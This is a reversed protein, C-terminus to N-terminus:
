FELKLNMGYCRTMPLAGTEAGRYLSSGTLATVEPDFQPWRTLCFVNTAYVSVSANRLIKSRLCIKKPLAYTLRLEKLKFYSTSFMNSEINDRNYLYTNYYEVVDTTVTTNPSYTGDPNLNVGPHVLGDYRGELTAETKGMYSLIANTLSYARGGFSGSFSASLTITRFRIGTQLGTTWDPFISGLDKLEANRVPCGTDASVIDMGSCDVVKGSADVYSAGEPAKEIGTGYIRGLDGGPFGYVMVKGGILSSMQWSTVGPALEVLTNKNWAWNMDITWRFNRRDVPIGHFALEVGRNRVRGANVLSAAAGSAWDQPLNIIQNTMDNNYFTANFGIRHAYFSTEVGVEFSEMNEPKLTANSKVSPISYSGPFRGSNAYQDLIRYPDTDNGVNAWSFFLKLMDVKQTKISCIKDLLLSTNVSPYFYSNHGKALASSWDNRGTLELFVMDRWSASVMAYISNVAKNYRRSTVSLAGNSNQLMYVDPKELQAVYLNINSRNQVMMNGGLSASLHIDHSFDHNFSLLFDVNNELFRATQERYMGRTASRSYQPKRQTRFDNQFNLAGRVMLELMDPIIHATVSMNGYVRDRDMTNLHGYAIFYPNDNASNILKMKDEGDAWYRSVNGRAYENYLDDASACPNAWMLSKMIGTDSYGGAPLNGSDKRYYVLSLKADVYRSKGTTANVSYTQTSYGTNPVIWKNRVDKFSVRVSAGNKGACNVAIGNTATFGTQFFEEMHNHAEYPLRTYEDNEPDYSAYIYRLQGEIKEGFQYRSNFSKIKEGNYSKDAPVNYFSYEDVVGGTMHTKITSLRFDGAGYEMQIDPFFSADEWYIGGNYTVGIGKFKPSTKTTIVIAGNAARSGYLATAAAGKLVSMSEIDDPNIDIGGGGYDVPADNNQYGGGNSNAPMSTNVPVGDVVFLAGNNDYTLSSEGRLTVRVTGDPGSTSSDVNLGAVKGSLGSLWNGGGASAVDGSSLKSVSYGLSKEQRSIGLATVVVGDLLQSDAKLRVDLKESKIGSVPIVTEVYGLSVFKLGSDKTTLVISYNGSNDAVVGNTTGDELVAVGPIGEGTGDDVVCGRIMRGSQASASQSALLLVAVILSAIKQYIYRMNMMKCIM